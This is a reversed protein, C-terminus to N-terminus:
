SFLFVLITEINELKRIKSIKSNQNTDSNRSVGWFWKTPFRTKKPHPPPITHPTYIQVTTQLVDIYTINRLNNPDYLVATYLPNAM